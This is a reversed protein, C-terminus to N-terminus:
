IEGLQVTRYVSSYTRYQRITASMMARKAEDLRALPRAPRGGWLWGSGIIQGPETASGAALLVDDQIETGAAVVSGIGVLSRRGVACAALHVNHGVTTDEGISVAGTSADIVTNDQINSGRGIAIPNQTADLKCGFFIGCDAASVDGDLQATRAIFIAASRDDGGRGDVVDRASFLSGAIAEGLAAARQRIESPDLARVQRAPSGAYVFGAELRSRPFVVSGAEVVVGDEIVCDDGVTCAHVVANRGVTVRDGILTPLLGHAIHVTSMYGIRFDDGIRVFHGDARIVAGGAMWLRSGITARGLLCADPGCLRPPGATQPWVGEFPLTLPQNGGLLEAAIAHVQRDGKVEERAMRLLAPPDIGSAAEACYPRFAELEEVGLGRAEFYRRVALRGHGLATSHALLQRAADPDGGLAAVRLEKLRKRPLQM